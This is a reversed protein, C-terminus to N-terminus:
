IKDFNKDSMSKDKNTNTKFDNYKYYIIVVKIKNTLATFCFM